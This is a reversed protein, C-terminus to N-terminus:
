NISEEDITVTATGSAVVLWRSLRPDRGNARNFEARGNNATIPAGSGMVGRAATLSSDVGWYVTVTSENTITCNDRNPDYTVVEQPTTTVVFFRPRYPM